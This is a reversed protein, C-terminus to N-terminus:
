KILCVTLKVNYVRVSHVQYKPFLIYVFVIVACMDFTSRLRMKHSPHTRSFCAYNSDLMGLLFSQLHLPSTNEYHMFRCGSYRMKAQLFIKLAICV